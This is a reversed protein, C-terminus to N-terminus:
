PRDQGGDIWVLRRDAGRAYRGLARQPSNTTCLVRAQPLYLLAKDDFAMGWGFIGADDDDAWVECLAFRRPAFEVCLEKLEAMLATEDRFLGSMGLWGEGAEQKHVLLVLLNTEYVSYL